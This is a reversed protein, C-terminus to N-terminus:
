SDGSGDSRIASAAVALCIDAPKGQKIERAAELSTAGSTTVDDVLIIHKGRIDVSSNLRFAGRMNEIRAKRKLGTQDKTRRVRRIISEAVEVDLNRGLSQAILTSQNFGRKRQRSPHLPIPIIIDAKFHEASSTITHALLRGFFEAVPIVGEYKLAHVLPRIRDDFRGIAYVQSIAQVSGCKLCGSEGFDMPIRCNICFPLETRDIARVCRPCIFFDPSEHLSECVVCQPPYVFNLLNRFATNALRSLDLHGM